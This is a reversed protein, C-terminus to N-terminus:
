QVKRLRRRWCLRAGAEPLRAATREIEKMGPLFALIGGEEQALAAMVAGAVAEEVREGAKRPCYRVCVPHSRGTSEIVPAQGMLQAIRANDLTASMVALRLDPRLAARVDLALALGFDADLSRKHFEDFLVAAIGPLEPSDVIMRSFVGETVVLIRTQASFAQELRMRYGVTRGVEEGLLAAMRRAVARAALRRPELLVLVGDARWPADLLHLPVLTSKGAGPPAVLM